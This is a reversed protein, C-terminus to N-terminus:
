NQQYMVRVSSSYFQQKSTIFNESKLSGFHVRTVQPHVEELDILIVPLLIMGLGIYRFVSMGFPFLHQAWDNKHKPM